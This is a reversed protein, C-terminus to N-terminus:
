LGMMNVTILRQIFRSLRQRHDPSMDVIRSGFFPSRAHTVMVTCAIESNVDLACTLGLVKGEVLSLETRLQFGQETLDSVHCESVTGDCTLRGTREIPIRYQRRQQTMFLTRDAASM